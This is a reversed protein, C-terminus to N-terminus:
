TERSMEVCVRCRQPPRKDLFLRRTARFHATNMPDSDRFVNGYAAQPALDRACGSVNGQSDVNVFEYLSPCYYTYAARRILVPLDILVRSRRRELRDIAERVEADDSFLVGQGSEFDRFPVLNDFLLRDVGLDEALAVVEEMYELHQRDVVYSLRVILDSNRERKLAVCARIAKLASEFGGRGAVREYEHADKGKLSINIRFLGLRILAEITREDLLLGNTTLFQTVHRGRAHEMMALLAENLLPEGQGTYSVAELHSLRDLIRAFTELSMDPMNAHQMEGSEDRNRLCWSCQLNCRDTVYMVAHRPSGSSVEGRVTLKHCLANLLRAPPRCLRVIRKLNGRGDMLGRGPHRLYYRLRDSLSRMEM